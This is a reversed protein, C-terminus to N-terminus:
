DFMNDIAEIYDPIFTKILDNIRTDNKLTELYEKDDEYENRRRENFANDEDCKINLKYLASILAEHIANAAMNKNVNEMMHMKDM